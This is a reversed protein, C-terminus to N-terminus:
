QGAKGRGQPSRQAIRQAVEALPGSPPPYGEPPENKSGTEDPQTVTGVTVGGSVALHKRGRNDLPPTPPSRDGGYRGNRDAGYGTNRDRSRVRRMREAVQWDGEQWEDWGAVYWSGDPGEVLDGQKVLYALHHSLRAGMSDMAARLVAWTRFRGRETQREAQALLALYAFGQAASYGQALKREPLQPDVRIYSRTAPGRNKSTAVTM